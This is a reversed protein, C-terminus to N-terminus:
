RVDPEPDDHEDRIEGVLEELLDELSVLGLTRGAGDHVVALHTRERLLRFLLESAPTTAACRVIPRLPPPADDEARLVDFAHWMGEIHDLDGAMVPVRAFHAAAIARASETFPVSRDAAFMAERPTMVDRARKASFDVIGTIIASEEADGVGELEGDRLLDELSERAEAEATPVVARRGLGALAEALLVLPALLWGVVRLPPVLWPVLTAGWRRGIARPVLQGLVLLAVSLLVTQEMLGLPHAPPRAGLLVGLGFALLAVTTGAALLLGRVDELALPPLLGGQLRQEVWHRLWIRSVSRVAAAAATLASVAFLVALVTLGWASV